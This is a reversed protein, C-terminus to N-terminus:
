NDRSDYYVQLHTGAGALSGDGAEVKLVGIPRAKERVTGETVIELAVMVRLYVQTPDIAGEFVVPSDTVVTGVMENLRGIGLAVVESNAPLGLAAPPIKAVTVGAAVATATPTAGGQYPNFTANFDPQTSDFNFVNQVGAETLASAEAASLTDTTLSTPPIVVGNVTLSAPLTSGTGADILNDWRDPLRGNNAEFLALAKATEQMSSATTAGHAREGYGTLRPVLVGAVAALILLVVTLEILTLSRKLSLPRM